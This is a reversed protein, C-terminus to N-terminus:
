QLAKTHRPGIDERIAELAAVDFREPWLAEGPNRGLEDGEEALAPMRIYTWQSGRPGNMLRRPLDDNPWRTQVIVVAGNPELRTLAKGRFWDELSDLELKSSEGDELDDCLLLPARWGTITGGVGVGFLGGGESTEWQTSATADSALATAFPWPADTFCDRVARSNCVVLREAASTAIIKRKPDRGLYWAAFLQLLTSKGSGPHLSVIVRKLEGREVRELIEALKVIHRPAAFGPYMRACFDLVGRRALEANAAEAIAEAQRADIASM